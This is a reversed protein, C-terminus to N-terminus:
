MPMSDDIRRGVSSAIRQIVTLLQTEDRFTAATLERRGNKKIYIERPGTMLVDSVGPDRLFEQIPGLGFIEDMVERLLLQKEPTSLPTRQENLLMDVRRSCEAYLQEVPMRRAEILDMTALLRKHVNAKLQQSSSTTTSFM